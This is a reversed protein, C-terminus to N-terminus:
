LLLSLFFDFFEFPALPAGTFTGM